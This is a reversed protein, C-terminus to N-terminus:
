QRGLTAAGDVRELRWALYEV